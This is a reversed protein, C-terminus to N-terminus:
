AAAGRATRRRVRGPRDHDRRRRPRHSLGLLQMMVRRKDQETAAFRLLGDDDHDGPRTRTLECSRCLLGPASVMWNCRALEANACRHLTEARDGELAVLTREAPVFGLPTSCNLCQTNEFFVLHGCHGCAFSRM